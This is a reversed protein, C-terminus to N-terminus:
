LHTRHPICVSGIGSTLVTGDQVLCLLHFVSDERDLPIIYVHALNPINYKFWYNNTFHYM